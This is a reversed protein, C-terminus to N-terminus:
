QTRGVTGGSPLRVPTVTNEIETRLREYQAPLMLRTGLQDMPEDATFGPNDTAIEFLVGGPERYYISHFYNRDMVPSVNFRLRALEKRWTEQQADDATRYAVHHVIGAGLGGRQGDPTCLLDVTSAFGDGAGARFRFRGGENGEVKFGMVQTLLNATSEYGEELITIGHFGRIAHEAPVSDAAWPHGGPNETAVIELQMGDSDTFSIFKESFRTAPPNPTVGKATLREIWFNLADKPVAFSTTAVQPTGITGRYAGPWAFFTLITGPRGLEDGYYLHYSTPDDFNVTLKVLRLGLVGCYFDINKQANATIATVHHIGPLPPNM